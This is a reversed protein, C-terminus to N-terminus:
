GGTGGGQAHHECLYPASCAPTSGTTTSASLRGPTVRQDVAIAGTECYSMCGCRPVEAQVYDARGERGGVPHAWERHLTAPTLGAHFNRTPTLVVGYYEDTKSRRYGDTGRHPACLGSIWHPFPSSQVTDSRRSRARGRWMQVPVPSARRWMQVPVPSAGAVDASPNPEGAAVDAGPSPEGRGCRCRSQARGQWM